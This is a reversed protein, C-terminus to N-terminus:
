HQELVMHQQDQHAQIPEMEQAVMDVARFTHTLQHLMQLLLLAERDVVMEADLNVMSEQQIQNELIVVVVLTLQLRLHLLLNLEEVPVVKVLYIFIVLLEQKEQRDVMVAVAVLL